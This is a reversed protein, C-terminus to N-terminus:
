LKKPMLKKALCSLCIQQTVAKVEAEAKQKASTIENQFTNWLQSASNIEDIENRSLDSADSAPLDKEGLRKGERELRDLTGSDLLFTGSLKKAAELILWLSRGM